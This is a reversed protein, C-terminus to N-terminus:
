REGRASATAGGGKVTAGGSEVKIATSEEYVILAADEEAAPCCQM